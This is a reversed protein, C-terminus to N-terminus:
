SEAEVRKTSFALKANFSLAVLNYIAGIIEKGIVILWNIRLLNSCSM